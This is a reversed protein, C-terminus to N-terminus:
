RDDDDIDPISDKIWQAYTGGRCPFDKVVDKYRKIM